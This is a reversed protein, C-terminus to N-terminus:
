ERRAAASERARSLIYQQIAKAQDASLLDGFTPMGLTARAGGRVIRDFQAHTQASAYRLDPIPGAVVNLGHCIMCHRDYLLSGQKVTEASATVALPPAPPTPHGYPQVRLSAKGDLAFTVVRGFGPKLPGQGPANIMGTAGGWGVMVTVYQQGGALYTVPPAMIGTGADFQWLQKGDTARYAALIGDGRGQMVLNGATALVGGNEVTPM